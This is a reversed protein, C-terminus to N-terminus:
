RKVPIDTGERSRFRARVYSVMENPATPIMIESFSDDVYDMEPLSLNGEILGTARMVNETESLRLEYNYDYAGFPGFDFRRECRYKGRSLTLLNVAGNEEIAFSPTSCCTWLAAASVSFGKPIKSFELGLSFKGKEVIGEGQGRVTLLDGNIRGACELFLTIPGSEITM